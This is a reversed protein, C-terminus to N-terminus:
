KYINERKFFQHPFVNTWTLKEQSDDYWFKIFKVVADYTMKIDCANLGSFIDQRNDAYINNIKKCVPILHNWDRNPEFWNIGNKYDVFGDDSIHVGLFENEKLSYPYLTEIEMFHGIMLLDDIEQQTM